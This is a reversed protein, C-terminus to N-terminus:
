SRVRIHPFWTCLGDVIQRNSTRFICSSIVETSDLHRALSREIAYRMCLELTTRQTSVFIQKLTDDDLTKATLEILPRCDADDKDM